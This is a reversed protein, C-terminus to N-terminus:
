SQTAACSEGKPLTASVTEGGMNNGGYLQARLHANEIELRAIRATMRQRRISEAVWYHWQDIIEARMEAFCDRDTLLGGHESQGADFKRRAMEAFLELSYERISEPTILQDNMYTQLNDPISHTRALGANAM